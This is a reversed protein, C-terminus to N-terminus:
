ATAPAGTRGGWVRVRQMAAVDAATLVGSATVMDWQGVGGGLGQWVENRNGWDGAGPQGGGGVCGRVRQM